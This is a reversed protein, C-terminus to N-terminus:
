AREIGRLAAADDDSDRWAVSLVGNTELVVARVRSFGVHGQLRVASRVEEETVRAQRMAGHLLKGEHLLLKPEGNILREVKQWRLAAKAIAFQLLILMAFALVGQALAIDQSTIVSALTSGLAVTVILDFANMQSLTRNGSLRVMFLMLPYASVAIAATRALTEWGSFLVNSMCQEYPNESHVAQMAGHHPVVRDVM